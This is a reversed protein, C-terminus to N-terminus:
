FRASRIYFTAEYEANTWSSPYPTDNKLRITFEDNKARVFGSIKGTRLQGTAGYTSTLPSNYTYSRTARDFPTIQMTTHATNGYNVVWRLIQLRGETVAVREGSSTSERVVPKSFEFKTEYRMGFRWADSNGVTLNGPATFTNAGTRTLTTPEGAPKNVEDNDFVRILAPLRGDSDCDYPVTITTTDPGANYSTTFGTISGADALSLWRDLYIQFDSNTDHTQAPSLEIRELELDGDAAIIFVYLFDGQIAVEAVQHNAPFDWYSWSSLLKTNAVSTGGDAGWFFRYLYIRSPLDDTVVFMADNVLDVAMSRITGDILEPVHATVDDADHVDETQIYYERVQSVTGSRAGFLITKGTAIPKGADSRFATRKNVSATSPSLIDGFSMEYQGNDSFCIVRGGFPIANRLIAVEADSVAIDIPDADSLALATERFFNFFDGARSMIVNEDSLFGLRNKYFFVNNITRGVFTPFPNSTDDGVLRDIWPAEEFSFTGGSEVLVHPMTDPDLQTEIAFGITETWSVDGIWTGGLTQSKVYYNDFATGTDGIVEVVFNNTAKQPLQSFSQVTGNCARLGAGGLGDSTRVNVANMSNQIRLVGSAAGSFTWDGMEGPSSEFDTQLENLIDQTDIDRIDTATDGDPTKYTATYTNTGDNIVVTYDQGYAGQLCEVFADNARAASLTSGKAVTKKKNVIFTYDAITIARFTDKPADAADINLYATGDPTNVTQSAGTDLNFVSIANDEIVIGYHVGTVGDRYTHIFADTEVNSVLNGIWKSPQRRDVGRLPNPWANVMDECQTPLRVNIPQQSIGQILSPLAASVLNSM